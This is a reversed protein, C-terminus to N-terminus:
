IHILSLEALETEIQERFRATANTVVSAFNEESAAACESEKINDDVKPLNLEIRFKTEVIGNTVIAKDLLDEMAIGVEKFLKLEHAQIATIIILTQM